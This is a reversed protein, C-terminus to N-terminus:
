MGVLLEPRYEFHMNDWIGWKGGWIFGEEEFIDIVAEPPMWRRSLPTLMWRENGANREWNWYIAKGGANRPLIDIALGLSHFSRGSTDRIERWHYGEITGINETFARVSSDTKALELIREQARNLRPAILRHVRPNKGLFPQTVLNAETSRRTATDYIADFFAMGSVPATRRNEASGFNRVRELQEPAFDAPDALIRNYTYLLRRYNGPAAAQAETLFRGDARFLRTERGESIITLIWDAGEEDQEATFVATPYAAQLRELEPMLAMQAANEPPMGVGSSATDREMRASGTLATLTIGLGALAAAGTLVFRRISM